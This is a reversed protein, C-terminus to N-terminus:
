RPEDADPGPGNDHLDGSRRLRRDALAAQVHATLEGGLTSDEPDRPQSPLDDGAALSIMSKIRMQQHDALVQLSPPAYLVILVNM